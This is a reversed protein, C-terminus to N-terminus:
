WFICQKDRPPNLKAKSSCKFAKAFEPINSVTGDVRYRTPSHPDSRIRQVAAEPKINRAWIRAFSIFFLQERTFDLGPLLYENGAKFSDEFNAKWARYAQILGTDGINEGSTLNGNVHIKGGKGDDITYESYQKVICDQKKKFGANTADTWWQELKGNQNYLRGASDFAHTLEHSAVHGFAGYSLYAPWSKHFFPPQLIGAPFVIENAPPNFYANVTSPFMEWTNPNRTKGLQLWKKSQASAAASIMNDFFTNKDVKVNSYYRLISEPNKTDPSLPYGVKVRINDAKEAAAKASKKDMWQVNPLSVKFADVIDTIVKTGREKSDGGFTENVFYRGSAFGLAEEVRSLCYEGRDGLAGKKIGTLVEELKRHAQWAKTSKGLFPSLKLAARTILYGEIVGSPTEDLLERLSKLYDPYTVIVRDPYARPTLASFYTPFHIQPLSETFHDITRPNYTAVPDQYLVDLDLSAAAIKTEFEVVKKALKRAQRSRNTPKDDGPNKGPENGDDDWPPWPWPPWYTVEDNKISFTSQSQEQVQQLAEDEESLTYFLSEVVERYVDVIAEEEYYEKTPLGLPPQYFWLVMYDPDDGADGEIAFSFFADMGRSHLYALAATLGKSSTMDEKTGIDTDDERYLRRVTRVVQLLPLTGLDDLKGEDLCSAYFNRLKRLIEKDASSSFDEPVEDSELVRQIIQKNQQALAEFNGFTSKDAPLPHAKLWGGNAYDYFNECPDQAMDLSSLITGALVICEPTLCPQDRSPPTPGPLGVTTTTVSTQTETVTSTQTSTSITTSVETTTSAGGGGRTRTFTITERDTETETETETEIATETATRTWTATTTITTTSPPGPIPYGDGPHRGREVNLKHQAGAFLGIFVSSLLLLILVFILLVKTLPTLPEQVLSSIRESWTSKRGVESGQDSDNGRILPTGEEVTSPRPSREVM